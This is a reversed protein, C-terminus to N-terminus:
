VKINTVHHCIQARVAECTRLGKKEYRAARKLLLALSCVYFATCQEKGRDAMASWYLRLVLQGLVLLDQILGLVLLDQLLVRYVWSGEFWVSGSNWSFGFWVNQRLYWKFCSSTSNGSM